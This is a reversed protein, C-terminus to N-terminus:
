LALGAQQRREACTVAVGLAAWMHSKLRDCDHPFRRRLEGNVQAETAYQGVIHGRVATRPIMEVPNGNAEAAARFREEWRITDALQNGGISAKHLFIKEIAVVVRPSLKPISELIKENRLIAAHEITGANSHYRVAGSADPAPDIALIMM